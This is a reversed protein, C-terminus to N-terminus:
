ILACYKLSIPALNKIKTRTKTDRSKLCHQPVSSLIWDLYTRTHSPLRAPFPQGSPILYQNATHGLVHFERTSTCSLLGTPPLGSHLTTRNVWVLTRTCSLLWTPPLGSSILQGKRASISKTWTSTRSHLGSSLTTRLSCIISSGLTQWTFTTSASASSTAWPFWFLLANVCRAPNVSLSESWSVSLSPSPKISLRADCSM